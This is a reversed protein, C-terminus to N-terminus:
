VNEASGASKRWRDALNRFRIHDEESVAQEALQDWQEAATICFFRTGSGKAKDWNALSKLISGTDTTKDSM